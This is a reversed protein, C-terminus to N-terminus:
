SYNLGFPCFPCPTTLEHNAILEEVLSVLDPHMITAAKPQAIQYAYRGQVHDYSVRTARRHHTEVVGAANVQRRSITVPNQTPSNTSLRVLFTGSPRKDLWLEAETAQVWGNFWDQAALNNMEALIFTKGTVFFDGFWKQLLDFRTAEVGGTECALKEIHPFATTPVGTEASVAAAFAEWSVMLQLGSNAGSTSGFHKKWFARGSPAAVVSEIMISELQVLVQSISPRVEPRPDWCRRMLDALSPLTPMAPTNAPARPNPVYPPIAPRVGGVIVERYFPDVDSYQSFLEEETYLEWLILGFAYVDSATSAPTSHWVEPALYLKTGKVPEKSSIHKKAPHFFQSFGFDSVKVRFNEDLLLNAPKLDRHVVNSINHLWAIGLVTDHALKLKKQWRSLCSSKFTPPCTRLSM